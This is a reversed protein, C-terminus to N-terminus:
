PPGPAQLNLETAEPAPPAQWRVRVPLHGRGPDLWVEALTDYPREPERRLRLARVAGAPLDLDETGLVRFIWARGDGRAGAVYLTVTQGPATLAPDAALVGALQLLWSVRDQAGAPLPLEGQPGSFRIRGSAREFNAARQERGRRSEVYREPAVGQSGIVGASAWALAPRGALQSQLVLAYRESGPQWDLRASGVAAGRQLVYHLTAAAPLRAPYLPLTLGGPDAAEPSEPPPAALAPAAAPAPATSPAATR